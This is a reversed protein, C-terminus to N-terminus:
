PKPLALLPDGGKTGGAELLPSAEFATFTFGSPLKLPKLSAVPRETPTAPMKEALFKEIEALMMTRTTPRSLWHDDGPLEVYRVDKGASKLKNLMDRTQEIPVVTDLSGHMLLIPARVADAHRAPSVAILENKESDPDGMTANWFYYSNSDDGYTERVWNMLKFLDSPGAVSVACAYRNPTLTAGALAAYGGYSAGIICTRAKDALGNRALADAGDEVDTQMLGGWEKYGAVRWSTGYGTSGRFNAQLVLYGRSALFQAWFNFDATDRLSPGGHM